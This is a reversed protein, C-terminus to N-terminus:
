SDTALRLLKSSVVLGAANAAEHNIRFRLRGRETVFEVIGGAQTFGPGNAVTLMPKQRAQSLLAAWRSRESDACFVIHCGSVDGGARVRRIVFPRDRITEGAFIEDIVARFPDSGYIGVVVAGNDASFASPPWEVFAAFNLLFAAKMTLEDVVPQRARTAQNAPAGPGLLLAAAAAAVGRRLRILLAM